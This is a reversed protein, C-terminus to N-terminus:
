EGEAKEATELGGRSLLLEMLAQDKRARALELPTLGYHGRRSHIDAGHDLLLTIVEHNGGNYSNRCARHLIDDPGEGRGMDGADQNPDIDQELLFRTIEVNRTCVATALHRATPKVGYRMLLCVCELSGPHPWGDRKAFGVAMDMPTIKYHGEGRDPDAGAKLLTEAIEVHGKECAKHLASKSGTNENPGIGWDLLFRVTDLRGAVAAAQLPTLAESGFHGAISPDAGHELLVKCLGPSGSGGAAVRLPTNGANSQVNVDAGAEVLLVVVAVSNEDKGRSCARHLPRYGQDGRTNASVGRSLLREVKELDCDRAAAHLGVLRYGRTTQQCGLMMLCTFAGLLIRAAMLRKVAKVRRRVRTSTQYETM